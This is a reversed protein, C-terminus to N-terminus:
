VSKILTRSDDFGQLYLEISSPTQLVKGREFYGLFLFDGDNLGTTEITKDGVTLITVGQAVASKAKAYLTANAPM